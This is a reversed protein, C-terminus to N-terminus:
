KAGKNYYLYKEQVYQKIYHMYAAALYKLIQLRSILMENYKWVYSQITKNYYYKLYDM